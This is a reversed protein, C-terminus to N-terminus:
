MKIADNGVEPMILGGNGGHKVRIHGVILKKEVAAVNSTGLAKRTTIIAVGSYRCAAM